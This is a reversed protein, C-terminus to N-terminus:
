FRFGLGLGAQIGGLWVKFTEGSDTIKRKDYLYNVFPELFFGKGVFIKGGFGFTGGFTHKVVSEDLNPIYIKTHTYLYHPAVKFYLSFADNCKIIYNLGLSIPIQEVTTDSTIEISTVRDGKYFYGIEFFLNLGYYMDYCMEGLAIFGGDYINRFVKDQPWFYAPKFAFSLGTIEKKAPQKHVFLEIPKEVNVKKEVKAENEIKAEEKREKKQEQLPDPPRASDNIMQMSFTTSLGIIFMLFYKKMQFDEFKM